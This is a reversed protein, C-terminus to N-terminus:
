NAIAQIRLTGAYNGAPQQLATTLDIQLELNDTRTKNKNLGTIPESFLELSAGATGIGGVTQTFATFSTPTGTAVRGFVNAVGINAVPPGPDTLANTTDFYGVLKVATRAPRLVWSTQIAVPTDGAAVGGAVLAFNVTSAGTLTVTLSEVLAANLVVNSVGSLVQSRANQPLFLLGAMIMLLYSGKRRGSLSLM